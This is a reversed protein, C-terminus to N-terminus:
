AEAAESWARLRELWADSALVLIGPLVSVPTVREVRDREGLRVGGRRAFLRLIEILRTEEPPDSRAATRIRETVDDTTCEVLGDTRSATTAFARRTSRPAAGAAGPDRGQAPARRRHRPAARGPGPTLSVM